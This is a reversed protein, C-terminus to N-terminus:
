VRGSRVDRIVNYTTHYGPPAQGQAQAVGCVERYIAGPRTPATAIPSRRRPPAARRAANMRNDGGGIGAGSVEDVILPRSVKM